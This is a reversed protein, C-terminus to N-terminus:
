RQVSNAFMKRTSRLEQELLRKEEGISHLTDHAAEERLFLEDIAAVKSSLEQNAIAVFDQAARLEQNLAANSEQATQLEQDGAQRAKKEKALAKNAAELRTALGVYL